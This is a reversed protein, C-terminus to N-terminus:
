TCVFSNETSLKFVAIFTHPMQCQFILTCQLPIIAKIKYLKWFHLVNCESMYKSLKSIFLLFWLFVSNQSFNLLSLEKNFPLWFSLHMLRIFLLQWIGSKTGTNEQTSFSRNLRTKFSALSRMQIVTADFEMIDVVIHSCFLCVYYTFIDFFLPLATLM